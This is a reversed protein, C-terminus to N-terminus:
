IGDLSLSSIITDFLNSFKFKNKVKKNKKTNNINSKSGYDIESKAELVKALHDYDIRLPIYNDDIYQTTENLKSEHILNTSLKTFEFKDAIILFENKVVDTVYRCKKYGKLKLSEMELEVKNIRFENFTIINESSEIEDYEKRWTEENLVQIVVESYDNSLLGIKRAYMTKDTIGNHKYARIKSYLYHNIRFQNKTEMIKKYKLDM